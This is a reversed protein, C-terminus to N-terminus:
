CPSGTNLLEDGSSIRGCTMRKCDVAIAATLLRTPKAGPVPCYRRVPVGTEINSQMSSPSAQVTFGREDSTLAIGLIRGNRIALLPRVNRTPIVGLDWFSSGSTIGGTTVSHTVTYKDCGGKLERNIRGLLQDFRHAYRPHDRLLKGIRGGM